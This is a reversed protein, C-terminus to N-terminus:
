RPMQINHVEFGQRLGKSGNLVNWAQNYNEFAWHKKDVEEDADWKRTLFPFKDSIIEGDFFTTLTPYEETLGKIKLYGCLYSNAEDVHQLVVEVDYSQGKSKQHGQFRSGNYLLSRNVGPQGSNAPPPPDLSAMETKVPM